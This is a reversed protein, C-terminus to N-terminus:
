HVHSEQQRFVEEGISSHLSRFSSFTCEIEKRNRSSPFGTRQGLMAKGLQISNSETVSSHLVLTGPISQDQTAAALKTVDLYVVGGSGAKFAQQLLSPPGMSLKEVYGIAESLMRDLEDTNEPTVGGQVLGQLAGGQYFLESVFALQLLEWTALDVNQHLETTESASTEELDRVEFPPRDGNQAPGVSDSALQGLIRVLDKMLCVLSQLTEMTFLKEKQVTNLLKRAEDTDEIAVQRLFRGISYNGEFLPAHKELFHLKQSLYRAHLLILPKVHAVKARVLDVDVCCWNSVLSEVACTALTRRELKGKDNYTLMHLFVLLRASRCTLDDTENEHVDYYFANSLVDSIENMSCLDSSEGTMGMVNDLADAQPTQLPSEDCAETQPVAPLQSLSSSKPEPISKASCYSQLRDYQERVGTSDHSSTDTGTGSSSVPQFSPNNSLEENGSKKHVELDIVPDHLSRVTVGKVGDTEERAPPSLTLPTEDAGRPPRTPLTASSGGTIWKWVTSPPQWSQYNQAPPAKTNSGGAAVAPITGRQQQAGFTGFFRNQGGQKPLAKPLPGSIFNAAKEFISPPQESSSGQNEFSPEAERRSTDAASAKSGRGAGPGLALEQDADRDPLQQLAAKQQSDEVSRGQSEQLNDSANFSPPEM